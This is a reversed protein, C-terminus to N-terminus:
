KKDNPFCIGLLERAQQLVLISWKSRENYKDPSGNEEILRIFEQLEFQMDNEIPVLPIEREEGTYLCIRAMQPKQLPRIIMYGNEGQIESQDNSRVIKSHLLDVEMDSYDVIITGAADCGNSLFTASANSVRKPEGFLETMFSACYIGIDMISGNCLEPKFTNEVIGKKYNDYRFSYQCYSIVARNIKGLKELNDKIMKFNPTFVTRLAEMFIVGNEKAIDIMEQLERINAGAPKECFVHKKAKLMKIAQDKHLGNPTVIYVADIEDCNALKDLDDFFLPAGYKKGIEIAREMKRSYVGKLVFGKSRSGADIIQDLIFSTGIIAFRVM